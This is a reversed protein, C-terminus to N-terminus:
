HVHITVNTSTTTPPFIVSRQPDNIGQIGGSVQPRINSLDLPSGSASLTNLAVPGGLGSLSPASIGAVPAPPTVERKVVEGTASTIIVNMKGDPTIEVNAPPLYAGTSSILGMNSAPLFTNTNSDFVAGPGPSIIIGSELHLSSGNAPKIQDGNVFGSAAQPNSKIETVQSEPTVVKDLAAGLATNSSAIVSGSLGPPVISRSTNEQASSDPTRGTTFEINKELKELQNVNLLSPVTPMSKAPDMVSFEGPFIRVGSDVIADLKESEHLVSSDLKNFVIEGEFLVTSTVDNAQSILFDTGRVGMVANKTTIFLKSKTKDKIQLYDKSVQSRVQGRVLELISSDNGSFKEIKMESQPGINLQSKDNMTLKVFSKEGTKVVEGESVIGNLTLARTGSPGTAEVTGRVLKAVGAPGAFVPTALAMALLTMLIM